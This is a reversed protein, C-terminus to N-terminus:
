GSRLRDIRLAFRNQPTSPGRVRGRWWLGRLANGGRKTFRGDRMRERFATMRLGRRKRASSSARLKDFPCICSAAQVVIWGRLPPLIICGVARGSGTSPDCATPCLARIASGRRLSLFALVYVREPERPCGAMGRTMRLAAFRNAFRIPIRLRLIGIALFRRPHGKRTEAGKQLSLAQGSCTLWALEDFPSRAHM